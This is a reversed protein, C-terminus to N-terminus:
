ACSSPFDLIRDLRITHAAGRTDTAHLFEEGDVTRLDTPTIIERHLMGEADRWGLELTAHKIIALELESHSGCDIPIYDTTM